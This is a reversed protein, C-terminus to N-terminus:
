DWITGDTDFSSDKVRVRTPQPAQSDPDSHTMSGFGIGQVQFESEDLNDLTTCEGKIYNFYKGEKKIFEPVKGTALDTEAYEVFWGAKANLNYYEQDTYLVFGGDDDKVRVEEFKNIHSRTGEYKVTQFNKVSSPADNFIITVYSHEETTPAAGYFMNRIPNIHHQWMSGNDFTYYQNNVTVGNEKHYSKFSVWGKVQENFSLTVPPGAKSQNAQIQELWGPVFGPRKKSGIISGDAAIIAGKDADLSVVQDIPSIADGSSDVAGGNDLVVGVDELQKIEEEAKVDKIIKDVTVGKEAAKKEEAAREARSKILEAKKADEKSVTYKSERDDAM